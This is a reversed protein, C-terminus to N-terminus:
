IKNFNQKLVRKRGPHFPMNSSKKVAAGGGGFFRTTVAPFTRGVNVFFM